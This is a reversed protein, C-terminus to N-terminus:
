HSVREHMFEVIDRVRNTRDTLAVGDGPNFLIPAVTRNVCATAAKTEVVIRIIAVAHHDLVNINTTLM